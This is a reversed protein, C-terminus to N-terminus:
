GDLAAPLTDLLDSAVLGSAHAVLEAARGHAVAAAAAALQPEVGKALFAAVVGTLVDGTGATALAPPGFDSVVVGREPAAVITDPGKLLLVAGFREAGRRAAELRHAGVWHSDTDLLQALEGAHPTLVLPASRAVPELEHLGDADVVAPLDIHQLLERVLARRGEGRGLGPGLALAGAREGADVITWLATGDEWGVKVPELVLTEVVPLSATPVALTVYGADARFAARATLAAAGSMGPQGGVVLVAGSTYKTDGERRRPVLTLLEATARRADTPFRQLGIDSVIVRGAHFRGPAVVLGVKLAHFTVTLDAHVAAGAIEGTSADVGSPLDVSVVPAPTANMREILEAAAPRPEGSFGTGFLADVVVDYTDLEEATEDAVHGAERLLRAAVRGDGGNSGGGCVCAFRRAAPYALLAERAVAAGAREMLEPVTEPYGPYREEAARMEEASYLPEYM